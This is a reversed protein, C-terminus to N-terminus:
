IIMFQRGAKMVIELFFHLGKVTIVSSLDKVETLEIPSDLIPFIFLLAFLSRSLHSSAYLRGLLLFNVKTRMRIGSELKM